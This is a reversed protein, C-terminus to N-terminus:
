QEKMQALSQIGDGEVNIFNGNKLRYYKKKPSYKSLIEFLQEHDMNESLMTLELGGETVSVGVSVRPSPEVTLKKLKDSIYVEAVTQMWPIGEVLLEYIKTEDESLYMRKEAEEYATFYEAVKQGIKM